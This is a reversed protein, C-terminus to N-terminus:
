HECKIMEETTNGRRIRLKVLDELVSRYQLQAVFMDATMDFLMLHGRM